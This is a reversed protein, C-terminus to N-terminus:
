GIPAAPASVTTFLVYDAPAAPDAFVPALALSEWKATILTQSLPSLGVVVNHLGFRALQESDLYDVFSVYTAPVICSSLMGGPAIPHGPSDSSTGHIDTAGVTSILDARLEAMGM